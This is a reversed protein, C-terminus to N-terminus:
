RGPPDRESAESTEQTELWQAYGRTQSRLLRFRWRMGTFGTERWLRWIKTALHFSPRQRLYHVLEHAAM